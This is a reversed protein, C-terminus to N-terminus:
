LLTEELIEAEEQLRTMFQMRRVCDRAAQLDEVEADSFITKLERIIRELIQDIDKNIELVWIV